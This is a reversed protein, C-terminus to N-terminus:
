KEYEASGPNECYLSLSFTQKEKFPTEQVAFQPNLHRSVPNNLNKM